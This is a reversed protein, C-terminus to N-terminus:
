SCDISQDMGSAASGVAQDAKAAAQAGPQYLITKLFWIHIASCKQFGRRSRGDGERARREKASRQRLHLDSPDARVFRGTGIRKEVLSVGNDCDFGVRADGTDTLAAEGVGQPLACS